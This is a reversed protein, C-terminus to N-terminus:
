AWPEVDRRYEHFKDLGRLAEAVAEGYESGNTAAVELTHRVLQATLRDDTKGLDFTGCWLPWAAQDVDAGTLNAGCLYTRTLDAMALSANTLNAGYLNADTLNAGDLNANTLNTGKLTAGALNADSLSADTLNARYLSVGTLNVGALCAGILDAYVLEAGRLDIGPHWLLPLGEVGLLERTEEWSM